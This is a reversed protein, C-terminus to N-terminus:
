IQTSMLWQKYRLTLLNFFNEKFEEMDVARGLIRKVSTADLRKNLNNNLNIGVGIVLWDTTHTSSSTETLIGCIKLYKKAAPDHALVDNPFKVKAKVGYMKLTEVVVEATKITFASSQEIKKNPRLILSFFLGGKQSDWTREFQGRGATQTQTVILTGHQAGNEAMSKALTQTSDIVTLNVTRTIM